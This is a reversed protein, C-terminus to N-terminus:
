LAFSLHPRKKEFSEEGAKWEDKDVEIGHVVLRDKVDSCTSLTLLRYKGPPMPASLLNNKNIRKIFEEWQDGPYDPDRYKDYASTPYVAVIKYTKRGEPTDILIYPHDKVFSEEQFKELDHFVHGSRVNHGYLVSNTDTFDAKNQYDLFITGFPHYDKKYNHNLYFDNDRGQAIPFDIETGPIQIKGIMDPYQAKLAQLAKQEPSIVPGEPKETTEQDPGDKEEQPEEAASALIKQYEEQDKKFDRNSKYYSGIKYGSFLICLVLILEIIKIINKKLNKM